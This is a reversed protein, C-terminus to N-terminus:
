DEGYAAELEDRVEDFARHLEARLYDWEGAFENELWGLYDRINEGSLPYGAGLLDAEAALLIDDCDRECGLLFRHM